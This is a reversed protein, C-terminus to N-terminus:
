APPKGGSRGGRRPKPAAGNIPENQKRARAQRRARELALQLGAARDNLTVLRQDQEDCVRLLHRTDRAWAGTWFSAQELAARYRRALKTFRRYVMVGAASAAVAAVAGLGFVAYVSM